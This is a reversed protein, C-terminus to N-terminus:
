IITCRLLRLVSLHDKMKNLRFLAIKERVLANVGNDEYQVNKGSDTAAKAITNTENLHEKRYRFISEQGRVRYVPLM